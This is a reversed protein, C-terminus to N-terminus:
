HVDTEDYLAEDDAEDPWDGEPEAQWDGEELEDEYEEEETAGSDEEEDDLPEDPDDWVDNEYWGDEEEEDELYRSISKVTMWLEGERDMVSGEAKVWEGDYANGLERGKQDLVVYYVGGQEEELTVSVLNSEEDFGAVVYAVIAQTEGGAVTAPGVAPGATFLLLASLFSMGIILKM